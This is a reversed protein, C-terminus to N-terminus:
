KLFSSGSLKISTALCILGVAGIFALVLGVKKM